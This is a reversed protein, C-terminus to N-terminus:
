KLEKSFLKEFREVIKIRCKDCIRADGEKSESCSFMPMGLANTGIELKHKKKMREDENIKL